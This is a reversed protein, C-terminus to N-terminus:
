NMDFSNGVAANSTNLSVASGEGRVEITESSKGVKLQANQTHVTNVALYLNPVTVSDFGEKTFTIQYGPGPLLDHFSYAGLSNTKTESSSNTKLDVLKVDVDPVVAGSADTVVGTLSAVNQAALFTPVVLFLTSVLLALLIKTGCPRFASEM